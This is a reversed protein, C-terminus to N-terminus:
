LQMLLKFTVPLELSELDSSLNTDIVLMSTADKIYPLLDLDGNIELSQTKQDDLPNKTGATVLPLQDSVLQVLTSEIVASTSDMPLTLSIGSLRVSKISSAEVGALKALKEIELSLSGQLTNPGEFLFEGGAVIAPTSVAVPESTSCSFVGIALNIILVLNIISKM